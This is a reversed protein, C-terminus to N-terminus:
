YLRVERCLQAYESVKAEWHNAIEWPSVGQEIAERVSSTGCLLDFHSKGTASPARFTFEDPYLKRIAAVVAIGTLVPRFSSRDYVHLQLGACRVGQFKSTTPIFYAERFGVGPLDFRKLAEKLEVPDIWPAGFMEFPKTTGRGESVNTGELLCMGPYVIATELTPMNPSPLVWPLGTEDFWMKRSWHKMRIIEIECQVGFHKRFLRALEGITLGHKQAIPYMGVFSAFEPELIPGEPNTGTIPNPRDLIWVEVGHKGCSQMALAATYLFTYFRAGVDQLDIIMLDIDALMETSPARNKGYLSYVPVGLRTDVCDEVPEGDAIEGRAGHEPGFLAAISVGAASLADSIHTLDSTVSAQNAVIGVKRNRLEDLKEQLMVELGTAVM